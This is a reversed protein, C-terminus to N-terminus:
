KGTMSPRARPFTVLSTPRFETCLVGVSWSTQKVTLSLINSGSSELYDRLTKIANMIPDRVVFLVKLDPKSTLLISHLFLMMGSQKEATPFSLPAGELHSRDWNFKAGLIPSGGGRSAPTQQSEPHVSRRANCPHGEIRTQLSRTWLSRTHRATPLYARGAILANNELVNHHTAAVEIEPHLGLNYLLSTSGCRHFGLVAWSVPLDQWDLLRQLSFNYAINYEQLESLKSQVFVEGQLAAKSPVRSFCVGTSFVTEAARARLNYFEHYGSARCAQMKQAAWRYTLM